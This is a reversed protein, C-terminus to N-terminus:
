WGCGSASPGAGRRRDHHGRHRQPHGLVPLPAARGGRRPRGTGTGPAGGRPRRAPGQAGARALGPPRPVLVDRGARRRLPLHVGRGSGRRGPDGRRGRGHREARGGRALAPHHGPRPRRQRPTVEVLDGQTARLVPGPSSGNVTIRDGDRRVTLTETVDAPRDPDAVLDAVPLGHHHHHGTSPGGGYDAYGMEAMDYTDPLRSSQWMWALPVVIAATALLALLLRVRGSRM